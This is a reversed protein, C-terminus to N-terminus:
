EETLENITDIDDQSLFPSRIDIGLEKATATFAESFPRREIIPSRHSTIIAGRRRKDEITQEFLAKSFSGGKEDTDSVKVSDQHFSLSGEHRRKGGKYSTVQGWCHVTTDRWQQVIFRQGHLPHTEDTVTAIRTKGM